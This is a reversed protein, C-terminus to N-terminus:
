RKRRSVKLSAARGKEHHGDWVTAGDGDGFPRFVRPLGCYMCVSSFEAGAQALQYRHFGDEPSAPCPM